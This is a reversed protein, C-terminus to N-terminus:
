RYDPMLITSLESRPIAATQVGLVWPGIQYPPFLIILDGGELYFNGFNDSFPTTGADLMERDVDSEDINSLRAIQPILVERTKQSLVDLYDASRLFLDDLHLGEGTKKDFTFTRYYANPHAGMTDAFMHYVYSVTDASEHMEYDAELVYKRDGGLEQIRIDEATLSAVTNENFRDVEAEAFTKMSLVAARDAREGASAKLPTLSPYYADIQHYEGADEIHQKEGVETGSPTSTAVSGPGEPAPRTLIFWLVGAAVLLVAVGAMLPLSKQPM